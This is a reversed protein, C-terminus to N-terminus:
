EFPSNPTRTPPKDILQECQHCLWKDLAYIHEIHQHKCNSQKPTNLIRRTPPEPIYDDCFIKRACQTIEPCEPPLVKGSGMCTPCDAVDGHGLDVLGNTCDTCKIEKNNYQDIVWDGFDILYGAMLKPSDRLERTLPHDTVWIGVAQGTDKIKEM